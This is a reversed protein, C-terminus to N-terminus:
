QPSSKFSFCPRIYFIRRQNNVKKMTPEFVFLVSNQVILMLVFVSHVLVRLLPVCGLNTQSLGVLSGVGGLDGLTRGEALHPDVKLHPSSVNVYSSGDQIKSLIHSRFKVIQYDM